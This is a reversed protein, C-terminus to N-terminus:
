YIQGTTDCVVKGNVVSCGAGGNPATGTDPKTTDPSTTKTTDFPNTTPNTSNVPSGFTPLPPRSGHNFGLTNVLLNVLGWVSLMLVFGILGYMLFKQGEQRKEENAAGAIFYRYIGIIFVIFALAFVLPVVYRDIFYILSLLVTGLNDLGTTDPAPSTAAYAAVPLLVLILAPV